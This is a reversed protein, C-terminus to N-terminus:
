KLGELSSISSASDNDSSFSGKRWQQRRRKKASNNPHKKRKRGQAGVAHAAGLSGIMTKFLQATAAGREHEPMFQIAALAIEVNKDNRQQEREAARAQRNRADEAVLRSFFMSQQAALAMADHLGAAAAAARADHGGGGEGAHAKPRNKSRKKKKRGREGEGGGSQAGVYAVARSSGCSAAASSGAALQLAPRTAAM